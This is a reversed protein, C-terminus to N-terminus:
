RSSRVARVAQRAAAKERAERQRYETIERARGENEVVAFRDGAQPTGQLGLVEVPQSPGAEKLQEGRDNVLARVRGWQDGAVVIDGPKLTGRKVLVTAVSGRGKDLKAEVV